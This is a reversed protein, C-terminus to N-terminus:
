AAPKKTKRKLTEQLGQWRRFIEKRIETASVKGKEVDLAINNLSVFTQKLYDVVERSIRMEETHNVSDSGKTSVMAIRSPERNSPDMEEPLDVSVEYPEFVMIPKDIGKVSIPGMSRSVIYQKLGENVEHSIYISGEKASTELRSAINVTNGLVDNGKRVVDGCHAGIRVIIRLKEERFSNYRKLAKQLRIGSLVANLPKKFLFLHGDGMRKILEGDHTAMVPLLIGEYENILTTLEMSTLVQAKQSYGKIDTFLVTGKIVHEREFKFAQKQRSFNVQKNGATDVADFGGEGFGDERCKIVMKVIADRSEPNEISLLVERLIGHLPINKDFLVGALVPIVDPKLISRLGKIIKVKEGPDVNKMIDIMVKLAYDDGLSYLFTVAEPKLEASGERLLKYLFESLGVDETIRNRLAISKITSIILPKRLPESKNFISILDHIIDTNAKISLFGAIRSLIEPDTDFIFRNLVTKVLECSFPLDSATLADMANLLIYPDNTETLLKIISPQIREWRLWKLLRVSAIALIKSKVPPILCEFCAAETKETDVNLYAYLSAEALRYLKAGKAWAFIDIIVKDEVVPAFMKSLRLNRILKYMILRKGLKAISLERSVFAMGPRKPNRIIDMLANYGDFHRVEVKIASNKVALMLEEASYNGSGKLYNLISQKLVEDGYYELYEKSRTILWGLEHQDSVGRRGSESLQKYLDLIQATIKKKLHSSLRTGTKECGEEMREIAHIAEEELDPNSEARKSLFLALKDYRPKQNDDTGIIKYCTRRIEPTSQELSELFIEFSKTSSLSGAFLLFLIRNETTLRNSFGAIKSAIKKKLEPKKVSVRILERMVTSDSVAKTVIQELDVKEDLELIVGLACARAKVSITQSGAYARALAIVETKEQALGSLTKLVACRVREGHSTKFLNILSRISDLLGIQGITDIAACQIEQDKHTFHRTIIGVSQKDKLHGLVSLASLVVRKDSHFIDSRVPGLEKISGFAEIVRHTTVLGEATLMCEGATDTDKVTKHRDEAGSM